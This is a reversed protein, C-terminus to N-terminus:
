GPQSPCLGAQSSALAGQVLAPGQEVDEQWGRGGGLSPAPQSFPSAPASPGAAGRQKQGGM